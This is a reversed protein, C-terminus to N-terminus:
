PGPPEATEALQATPVAFYSGRVPSCLVETCNSCAGRDYQNHRELTQKIDENTTKNSCVLQIHYL